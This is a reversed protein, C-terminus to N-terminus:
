RSVSMKRVIRQGQYEMSYYYIGNAYADVQLEVHGNGAEAQIEERRLLQGNEGMVSFVIVGAQPVNYPIRTVHASPNPINQGMSWNMRQVDRIGTSDKTCAFEVSLTDNLQISDGDCAEVYAKLSYAGNHNPVRYGMTFSHDKTENIDLHNITEMLSEVVKGSDIVDVHLVINDAETNGINAVRVVPNQKTKGLAPSTVDIGLVQIDLSDPIEVNGVINIENNSNDADCSLEAKLEFFFFPQDKSVAPVKFPVSMAHLMTDGPNLHNYVTDTAVNDDDLIMHLLVKDVPVNGRNTVLASVSVLKGTLITMEANLGYVTDLSVDQYVYLSSDRLTDNAANDDRSQMFAEVYYNGSNNLSIQGLVVTDSEFGALRKNYVYRNAYNVAGTVNLNITDKTMDITLRSKNAIVAKVEMPTNDCATRQSLDTPLLEIAADREATIRIRDISQNTNGFSMARFLVSLCSSQNYPTLDFDYQRWATATDAVLIRKLETTTAGGDTSVLVVMMDPGACDANHAFWFSLTPKTCGQINVGNFVANASAGPEKNGAFELRGTGFVPAIAPNTGTGSVVKWDINGSVVNDVFEAPESSFDVDYPLSVRGVKYVMSMTDNELVADSTDNLTIHIHYTGGVLTPLLGLAITDVEQFVISGARLTTDYHYNIAGSVDVSIKLASHKFDATKLGGNKVSITVPMSEPYCTVAAVPKPSLISVLQLDVDENIQLGYAGMTTYNTRRQGNIDATVNFLKPCIFPEYDKLALGKTTDSFAPRLSVSHMDQSLTSKWTSLSTILSGAYGINANSLSKYNNYDLVCYSTTYYSALYCPYNTSTGETVFQNNKINIKYSTNTNYAYIGYVTGSTSKVFVSNHSFDWTQYPLYCYIGYKAGGNGEVIIENNIMAGTRGGYSSYNKYYYWYVGYGTGTTVVHIRNGEMRDVTSYYNNYIGYFTSSSGSRNTITNYSLSKYHSYYISYFAYCYANGMINSDVTVSSAPMNAGTGAIYYFYMNYYGGQINNGAFVVDVPYTVSNSAGQYLVAYYTSATAKVNAYINCGRFSVDEIGGQLEVGVMGNSTNGFTINRFHWHGSNAISLATGGSRDIVVKANGDPMVTITNTASAGPVKDSISVGGYTGARLKLTVPGTIGCLRMQTMAEAPTSFDANSGGVTYNGAFRGACSYTSAKVTDDSPLSDKLTGIGTLYVTFTHSGGPLVYKGMPVLDTEGTALKGQWHLDAGQAVRDLEVRITAERLTDVGANMLLVYPRTTDTVNVTVPLNSIEVLAANMLPIENTYAGILTQTVRLKGNLDRNVGRMMPCLMGSQDKLELSTSSNLFTPNRYQDHVASPLASQFAALTTKAAGVYGVNSKSYWCNYDVDFVSVYSASNLYYPYTTGTGECVAINNKITGSYATSGVASYIGYQTNSTGSVLVSNNYVKTGYIYYVYMGYTTASSYSTDNRMMVENNSVITLSDSYGVRLGYQTTNNSRIHFKNADILSSDNYYLLCGYNIYFGGIRARDIRNHTFKLNNNYYFYGVYSYYDAIHNSDFVINSNRANTGSGYFYVGYSGGLIENGIFRINHIPSGSPRYIVTYLNSSVTTDFGYLTCHSFEIDNLGAGMEVCYFPTRAKRADLTIKSFTLGSCDNITLVPGTKPHFVVSDAHDALSTITVRHGTFKYQSFELKETYTGSALKLTVDGGLGCLSMLHLAEKLSAFDYKVSGSSKGVTYAGKMPGDCGYSVITLTDDNLVSDVKNNPDSVWVTITDYGHSKQMYTGLTLTDYFDVYMKGTWKKPSQLVGNLTWNVNCSTLWADGKNQLSVRVPQLGAVVGKTPNDISKLAVSNSDYSGGVSGLGFRVLPKYVNTTWSTGNNVCYTTQAGSSGVNHAAWAITTTSTTGGYGEIFIYINMGAPLTFPRKLIVENWGVKSVTTGDYVETANNAVPDMYAATMPSVDKTALMHIKINRTVTVSGANAATSRLYWAFRIITMDVKNPNIDAAEYLLRSKSATYRVDYILSGNNHTAGTTDAPFYYAYSSVSGSKLRKTYFSASVRATNGASDRGQIYYSVATGYYQFPINAEWLSDGSTATMRISDKVTKGEFTCSYNLVPPVIRAETRTAVKAKIHFPGVSWVTDKLVPSLFAVAPPIQAFKSGLVQFDDLYWGAAIFSGVAPGKRIVFRFRVKSFGAYDSLDFVEQKWWGNTPRAFTDNKKWDGYSEHSFSLSNKYAASAGEYAVSPLNKWKYNVGLGDEQYQIICTDSPLVKCIHNFRLTVHGYATCDYFPTMLVISDGHTYPVVGHMAYKASTVIGTDPVWSPTATSVVPQASWGSPLKSSFKEDCLYTAQAQIRSMVCLLLVFSSLHKFFYIFSRM